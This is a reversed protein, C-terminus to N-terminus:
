VVAKVMKVVKVTGVTKVITKFTKFTLVSSIGGIEVDSLKTSGAEIGKISNFLSNALV